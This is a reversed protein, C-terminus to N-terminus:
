RCPACRRAVDVLWEALKPPTHERDPRYCAKRWGYDGLQLRSGDKRKGASGIICAEKGPFIPMLPMADPTIGVIYLLTPKEATHGFNCQFIPLTWGGFEDFENPLPLKKAPWLKSQKPHELVGGFNRVQDVAWLALEKEDKRPKAMHSLQGWARCPPHAVVPTGGPWLLADRKIDWVDCGDINKYNSDARAFLVSVFQNKM